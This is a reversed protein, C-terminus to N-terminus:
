ASKPNTWKDRASSRRKPMLGQEARLSAQIQPLIQDRVAKNVAKQIQSSVSSMFASMEQTIKQNIEGSLRKLESDSDTERSNHKNQAYTRIETEHSNSRSNGVQNM